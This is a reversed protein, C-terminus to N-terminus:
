YKNAIKEAQEGAPPIRALTRLYNAYFLDGRLQRARSGTGLVRYTAWDALCAHQDEPFLPEDGNEVLADPLYRYYVCVKEEDSLVTAVGEANVSFFLPAGSLTEVRDIKICKKSLSSLAFKGDALTVEGSTALRHKCRMIEMYAQNFHALLKERYESQTAEDNDENLHALTLLILESVNM